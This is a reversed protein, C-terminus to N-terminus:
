NDFWFVLRCDHGRKEFGEMIDLIIEYKIFISDRQNVCKKYEELNLWSHSHWDSNYVKTKSEDVYGGVLGYYSKYKLYSENYEEAQASTCFGSVNKLDPNNNVFYIVDSEAEYSLNKPLGRPEFLKNSPYRVGAMIGFMDYDRGPNLREGFCHWMSSTKEKYEIYVHIDAGM